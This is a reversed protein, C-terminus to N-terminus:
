SARQPRLRARLLVYGAGAAVALAVYQSTSLGYYVGRIDDGRLFELCFRLIAYGLLYLTAARGPPLGGPRRSAAFLLAFLVLNGVAEYLQSPHVPLSAVAGPPLLGQAKHQLFAPSGAPFRVGLPGQTVAGFCCGGFFCGLRGFAHGLPAYRCVADVLPWPSLGWLRCGIRMALLVALAGGYFVLGGTAVLGWTLRGALLADQVIPILRAGALGLPLSAAFILLYRGRAPNAALERRTFLFIVALGAVGLLLYGAQLIAFADIGTARSLVFALLGGM